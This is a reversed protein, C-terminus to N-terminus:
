AAVVDGSALTIAVNDWVIKPNVNRWLLQECRSLTELIEALEVPEFRRALADVSEPQDANILPRDAATALTLADSIAAAILELMVGAARRTALLRSLEAGDKKKAEAVAQGALNDSVKALHEGFDADGASPLNGLREIVDRKVEYMGQESLTLARGLSGATFAAWFKAEVEGVGGELLRSVVFKEPLLRFRILTCRSLTTPLLRDARSSILIIRVGAPPEELTKLLANQAPISM